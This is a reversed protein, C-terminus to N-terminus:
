IIPEPPRIAKLREEPTSKKLAKRLENVVERGFKVELEGLFHEKWDADGQQLLREVSLSIGVTYRGVGALCIFYLERLGIGIDQTM